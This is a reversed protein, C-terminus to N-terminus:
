PRSYAIGLDALKRYLTSRGINLRRAVESICGNYHAMALRIVDAEIDELARVNGDPTYAIVGCGPLPGVDDPLAAVRCYDGCTGTERPLPLASGSDAGATQSRVCATAIREALDALFESPAAEAPFPGDGDKTGECRWSAHFTMVDLPYAQATSTVTPGRSSRIRVISLAKKM